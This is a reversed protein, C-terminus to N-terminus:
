DERKKTIVARKVLEHLTELEALTDRSEKKLYDLPTITFIPVAMLLPEYKRVLEQEETLRVKETVELMTAICKLSLHIDECLQNMWLEDAMSIASKLYTCTFFQYQDLDLERGHVKEKPDSIQDNRRRMILLTDLDNIEILGPNPKLKLKTRRNIYNLVERNRIRCNIMPGASQIMSFFLDDTIERHNYVGDAFLVGTNLLYTTPYSSVSKNM